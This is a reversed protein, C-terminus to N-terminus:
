TAGAKWLRVYRDTGYTAVLNRSPHHVIGTAEATCIPMSAEVQGSPVAFTVLLGKDTVGYLWKGRMSLTCAVFNGQKGDKEPDSTYTRVLEGGMSVRYMDTTRTCLVIDEHTGSASPVLVASAIEMAARSALTPPSVTQLCACTKTRWIKLTGDSSTSLVRSEDSSFLAQTVYSDHGRFEKLTQGSKLGHIRVLHDLSGTLVQTGDRALVLSTIGDGHARDFRRLCQGSAVKWVKVQGDQSGTALVHGDRSFAVATVSSDHMMFEDCLLPPVHAIELPPSSGMLGVKAQYALDKRLTCKNTDWLEIFGDKSGTVLMRGDPSFLACHPVSAASFKIKGAAHRVVKDVHEIEKDKSCARFLDVADDDATVLGQLQQWKLAQGLLVLLRSPAVSTVEQRFVHAVDERRKQKTSGAYAKVPDFSASQALHALRRYRDPQTQKMTAFVPTKELLQVVVDTEHAELLDLAMLEYLDMMAAASCELLTTQQLVLDWRGHAIDNTLSEVSEVANLSVHSEEQLARMAHFLRNERLFQLILRITDRADVQLERAVSSDM